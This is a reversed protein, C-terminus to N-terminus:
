IHILSLGEKPTLVTGHKEFHVGDKSTALCQTERIHEDNGQGNLWIHGTYILCLEGNNDIASGSFCGSQDYDHDPAIAIPLRRWTILDDSVAHGWHMPGWNEDYPHHQYFAHYQGKYYVLGNPDNMWGAQPALHFHPFYQKNIQQELKEVAQNAKDIATNM